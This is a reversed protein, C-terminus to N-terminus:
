CHSSLKRRSGGLHSIPQEAPQSVSWFSFIQCHFSVDSPWVPISAKLDATLSCHPHPNKLIKRMDRTAESQCVPGRTYKTPSACLQIFSCHSLVNRIVHDHDSKSTLIVAANIVDYDGICDYFLVMKWTDEFM